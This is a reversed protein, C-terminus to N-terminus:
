TKLDFRIYRPPMRGPNVCVVLGAKRMSLLTQQGTPYGVRAGRWCESLTFPETQEEVWEVVREIMLVTNPRHGRDIWPAPELYAKM